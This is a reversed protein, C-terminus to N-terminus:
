HEKTGEDRFRVTTSINSKLVTTVKFVPNPTQWPWQLYWREIYGMPSGISRRSYSYQFPCYRLFKSVIVMYLWVVGLRSCKQRESDTKTRYM